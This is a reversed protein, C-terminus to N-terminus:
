FSLFLPLTTDRLLTRTVGGFITEVTRSRSYCGIVAMDAGLGLAERTITEAIGDEGSAVSHVGAEIEFRALYEALDPGPVHGAELAYRDGDVVLITVRSARTLLPLAETVARRVQRSGNWAIVVHRGHEEGDWASPALLLPGGNLSLLREATWSPPLHAPSPHAAIMLDSDLFRLADDGGQAWVVRFDVPLGLTAAAARLPEIEEAARARDAADHRRVVDAIAKVGRTYTEDPTLPSREGGYVATLGAGLHRALRAARDFLRLGEPTADAFVAINRYSTTM